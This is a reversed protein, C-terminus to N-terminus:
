EVGILFAYLPQDGEHVEVEIKPHADAL